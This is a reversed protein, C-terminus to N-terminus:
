IEFFFPIVIILSSPRMRVNKNETSFVQEVSCCKYPCHWAQLQPVYVHLYIMRQTKQIPLDMFIITALWFIFYHHNIWNNDLYQKGKRFDLCQVTNSNERQGAKLLFLFVHVDTLILYLGNFQDGLTCTMYM